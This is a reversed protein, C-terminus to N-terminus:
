VRKASILVYGLEKMAELAHSVTGLKEGVEGGIELAKKEMFGCIPRINERVDSYEVVRFGTEHLLEKLEDGSILSPVQFLEHWCAIAEPNPCGADLVLDAISLRSGPRLVRAINALATRRDDMHVLSEIAYAGDFLADSFPLDMANAYQFEVQDRKILDEYAARAVEVQHNSVTIGTIKVKHATSIQAACKGTGCGVDLIHQGSIPYLRYAVEHTMRSTAEEMSESPDSPNAWYGVHIFGAMIDTMLGTHEDYMAGVDTSTPQAIKSMETASCFPHHYLLLRQPTRDSIVATQSLCAHEKLYM